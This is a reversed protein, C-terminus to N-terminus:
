IQATGHIEITGTVGAFATSAAASVGVLIVLAGLLALLNEITKSKM